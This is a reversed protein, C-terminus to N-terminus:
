KLSNINRGLATELQKEAAEQEMYADAWGKIMRITGALAFTFVLLVNRLEGLKRRLGATHIRMSNIGFGAKKTEKELTDAGTAAYLEAKALDKLERESKKAAKYVDILEKEVDDLQKRVKADGKAKILLEITQQTAM